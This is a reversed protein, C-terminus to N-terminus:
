NVAILGPYPKKDIQDGQTEIPEESVLRSGWLPATCM